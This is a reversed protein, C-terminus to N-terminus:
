GSTWGDDLCPMSRFPDELLRQADELRNAQATGLPQLKHEILKENLSRFWRRGDYDSPSSDAEVLVHHLAPLYIGNMLYAADAKGDLSKRARNFRQHDDVSLQIAIREGEIDCNWRGEGGTAVPTTEFISGIPAEEANDIYYSKPEDAALVTGATLTVAPMNSFEEHWGSAKFDRILQTAVVFPRLEVLGRLLGPQLTGELHPEMTRYAKRYRTTSCELILVFSAAEAGVQELIDEDSLSFDATVDVRSAGRQRRLDMQVEFEAHPYDDNHPRLVPHPFAKKLDFKM